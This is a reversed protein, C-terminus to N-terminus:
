TNRERERERGGGRERDREGEMERKRERERWRERGMQTGGGGRPVSVLDQFVKFQQFTPVDLVLVDNFIELEHNFFQMLGDSIEPSFSLM